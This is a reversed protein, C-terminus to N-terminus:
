SILKNVSQGTTADDDNTSLLTCTSTAAPSTPFLGNTTSALWSLWVNSTTTSPPFSSFCPHSYQIIAHAHSSAIIITISHHYVHGIYIYMCMLHLHVPFSLYISTFPSPLSHTLSHARAQHQKSSVSRRVQPVTAMTPPPSQQPQYAPQPYLRTIPSLATVVATTGELPAFSCPLSVISLTLWWWVHPGTSWFYVIDGNWKGHQPAPAITAAIPSM